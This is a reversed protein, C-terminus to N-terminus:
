KRYTVWCCLNGPKLKESILVFKEEAFSEKLPLEIKTLIGKEREESTLARSRYHPFFFLPLQNEVLNSNYQSLVEM